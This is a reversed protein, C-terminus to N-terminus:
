TLLVYSQATRQVSEDEHRTLKLLAIKCKPHAKLKGLAHALQRLVPPEPREAAAQILAQCAEDTAIQALANAAVEASESSGELLAAALAIVAMDSGIAVLAAGAQERVGGSPDSLTRTLVPVHTTDGLQGLVLAATARVGDKPDSLATVALPVVSSDQNEMLIRLAWRRVEQRKSNMCVALAQPIREADYILARAIPALESWLGGADGAAVSALNHRVYNWFHRQGALFNYPADPQKQWAALAVVALGRDVQGGYVLINELIAGWEARPANMLAPLAAEPPQNFLLGIDQVQPTAEPPRRALEGILRKIEYELSPFDIPKTVFASAGIRFSEERVAPSDEVSLMIIPIDRSYENNRLWRLVDLGNMDPLMYDLLILRPNVQLVVQLGERGTPATLVDVGQIHFYQRVIQQMDPTDEIHVIDVM